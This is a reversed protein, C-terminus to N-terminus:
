QLAERARAGLIRAMAKRYESSGRFDGPPDLKEPEEALVPASAVGSFAVAVNGQPDRRAVAAVIARDAPMRAVRAFAVQGGLELKVSAIIREVLQGPEVLLDALAIVCPGSRAELRVTAKHVLLTALLESEFDGSAVCGGLTSLTRLSSPLERRAAERVADPLLPSMAIDELTATSGIVISNDESPRVGGLGAAQLDVVVVPKTGREAGLRTGGGVLVSSNQDLAALAEELSTPRQYATVKLM